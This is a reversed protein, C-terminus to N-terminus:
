NVVSAGVLVLVVEVVAADAAVVVVVVRGGVVIVVMVVAAGLGLARIVLSLKAEAVLSILLVSAVISEESAVKVVFQDMERWEAPVVGSLIVRTGAADILVITSFM